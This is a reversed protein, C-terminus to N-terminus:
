KDTSYDVIDGELTKLFAVIEDIQTDTLNLGAQHKAMIDVAERIKAVAGNHFYPSTKTVNRLIPVRFNQTNEQGFFGGINEFPFSKDTLIFPFNLGLNDISIFDKLPFKKIVQGGVSMGTHCGKCGFNIFNALGRKAEDNIADNDGELFRDYSGRTLLTRVYTGIAKQTNKFSVAEKGSELEDKFADNFKTVYNHNEKLRQEVDKPTMNMEFSAQISIGVEEEVSKVEGDWTLFKALSSNLITPTNLHFPNERGNHGVATSLRDTGSQDGLHCAVCNTRDNDSLLTDLLVNKDNKKFMHCTVCSIDKNRSLISDFYLEKGLAIKKVSMPNQPNNVVKLLEEYTKPVPLMGRRLAVERLEEDSYIKFKRDQLLYPLSLLIVVVLFAVVIPQNFTKM